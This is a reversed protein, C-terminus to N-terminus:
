SLEGKFIIFIIYINHYYKNIKLDNKLTNLTIIISERGIMIEEIEVEEVEVEEIEKFLDRQDKTEKEIRIIEEIEIRIKEETEEITKRM